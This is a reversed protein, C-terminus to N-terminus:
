ADVPHSVDRVDHMKRARYFVGLECGYLVVADDDGAEAGEGLGGRPRAVRVVGEKLLAPQLDLRQLVLGCKRMYLLHRGKLLANKEKTTLRADKLSLHRVEITREDYESEPYISVM